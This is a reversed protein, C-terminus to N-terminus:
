FSAFNESCDNQKVGDMYSIVRIKGSKGSPLTLSTQSSNKALLIEDSGCVAYVDYTIRKSDVHNALPIIEMSKKDDSTIMYLGFIRDPQAAMKEAYSPYFYKELSNEERYKESFFDCFCDTWNYVGKKSLHNDDHYDSDQLSLLEPRALNFDYYAFGREATFGRCFSYYEDYNEKQHLYFDSGPMSYFILEINNQSCLEIIKDVTNIWDFSIDSIKILPEYKYDSFGGDPIESLDLVCGKGAYESDKDGYQYKFYTGNLVSKIKKIISVPNLTMLKDKGIPLLSNLYYKPQSCNLLYNTKINLDKIHSSVIYESKFGTREYFPSACTIAFDLELFVKEIKYLKVAQCLIAYTGDIKQSPTGTNFVNKGFKEGAINAEVGHSTHSAGCLLYDINTQEYFEHFLVRAYSNVDDKCIFAVISTCVFFFLVFLSIKILRFSFIKKILNCM